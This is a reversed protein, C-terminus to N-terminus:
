VKEVKYIYLRLCNKHGLGSIYNKEVTETREYTRVNGIKAITFKHIGIRDFSAM